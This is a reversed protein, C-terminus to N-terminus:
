ELVGDVPAAGSLESLSSMDSASHSPLSPVRRTRKRLSHYGGALAALQRSGQRRPVSIRPCGLPLLIGQAQGQGQARVEQLLGWRWGTAM